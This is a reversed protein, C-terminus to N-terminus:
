LAFVIGAGAAAMAAGYGLVRGTPAAAVSTLTGTTIGGNVAGGTSVAVSSVANAVVTADPVGATGTTIEM